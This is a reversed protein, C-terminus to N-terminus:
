IGDRMKFLLTLLGLGVAGLILKVGWWVGARIEEVSKTLTALSQTLVEIAGEFQYRNVSSNRLESVDMKTREIEIKHESLTARIARIDDSHNRVRAQLNNFEQEENM